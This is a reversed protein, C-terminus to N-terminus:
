EVRWQFVCTDNGGVSIVYKDDNSFKVNTVHSSHGRGLSYESHEVMNPYRRVFDNKSLHCYRFLKVKGFDDATALLHYGDPHPKHARDVASVDTGDSCSEWIGLFVDM